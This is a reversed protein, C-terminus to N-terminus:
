TTPHQLNKGHKQTWKQMKLKLYNTLGKTTKYKKKNAKPLTQRYYNELYNSTRSIKPNHMFQTLRNLNPLIKKTIFKQLFRPIDDLNSLLKDLLNSSTEYNTADFIQRIEKFYKKLRTKEDESTKKSRLIKYLKDGIMKYFHFICLQHKVKLEDMINKYEPVHDTTIAKLPKNETSEQIFQKITTYEKDPTIKENVPINLIHDYLTLRYMWVGNIKVYQEDYCYYGSYNTEINTIQNKTTTQLWNHITQYSIKVGFFNLLDEAANRLSRYGTKILNILKDMFISPFRYGPKIISNLSTTFKKKCSKCVYRRLYVLVPKQEGIILQKERYEQKNIKKSNCHPCVPNIYDMHNDELLELKQNVNRSTEVNELREDIVKQYGIKMTGFDSLKLQIVDISSSLTSVITNTMSIYRSESM